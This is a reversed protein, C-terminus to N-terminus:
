AAPGLSKSALGVHRAKYDLFIWVGLGLLGASLVEAVMKKM